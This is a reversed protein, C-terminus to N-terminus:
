SSVLKCWKRVSVADQQRADQPRQIAHYCPLYPGSVEAEYEFMTYDIEQSRHVDDRRKQWSLTIGSNLLDVLALQSPFWYCAYSVKLLRAQDTRKQSATAKGWIASQAQRKSQSLTLAQQHHQGAAQQQAQGLTLEVRMLLAVADTHLGALAAEQPGM